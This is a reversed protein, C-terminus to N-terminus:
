APLTYNQYGEGPITITDALTIAESAPISPGRASENEGTVFYDKKCRKCFFGSGQNYYSWAGCRPCELVMIDEPTRGEKLAAKVDSDKWIDSM